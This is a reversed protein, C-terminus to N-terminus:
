WGGDDDEGGVPELEADIAACALAVYRPLPKARQPDLYARVANRTLGLTRSAASNSLSHRFMWVTFDTSNM